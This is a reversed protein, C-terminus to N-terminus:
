KKAKLAPDVRWYKSMGATFEQYRYNKFWPNVVTYSLRHVGFVWPADEVIIKVMQKYIATREPGDQLMLSKEYLQDVEPNSYNADNPGPTGNKTIFLQLFDEADPYDAGWAMGWMQGKKNKVAQQFEPWSYANIKLEVGIAAFEKQLYENMQRTTSSTQTVYEIPGLGKGGPFGAKALYEKAKEVNFQVYPNKFDPDYGALGPPIPGQAPLATGNYFLNIFPGPNHALSLAQRLYKNKGVIPDAMNFTEHTIDLSPSKTLVIGKAKLEAKLEGNTDIAQSFNDKPIGSYDLEGAMFNLWRPQDEEIISIVIKDALPLKKGADALLGAAQDQSDGETPYTDTRYTPNKEYVIKSNPNYEGLKWPGTGVPHNLFEKGYNDVVERAVAVTFPMALAYMMQFSRNKLKLQITYRDLAHLGSIAANYDTTPAKANADHWENFGEIKGDFVWWGPSALKPDGLRKWSYVFDDATLERGKGGTAKFAPDDQFVIGKKIKITWTKGDASIEPMAEALAPILTYPRKLYHYQYLGEYVRAVEDGSYMDDSMVPDLGKIKASVAIHIANEAESKKKTCAGIGLIVSIALLLFAARVLPKHNTSQKQTDVLM